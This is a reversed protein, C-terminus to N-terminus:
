KEKVRRAVSKFVLEKGDQTSHAIWVGEDPMPTFQCNGESMKGDATTYRFTGEWVKEQMKDLPYCNMLSSGDTGFWHDVVGKVSADWGCIGSCQIAAGDHTGSWEIRLCYEGPAWLREDRNTGLKKGDSVDEGEWAGVFYKMIKYAESPITAPKADAANPKASDFPKTKGKSGTPSLEQVVIKKAMRM